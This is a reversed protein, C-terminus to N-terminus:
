MTWSLKLNKVNDKTLIKEDRAWGTRQNDGGDTVWDTLTGQPAGGGRQAGATLAACCWAATLLYGVKKMVNEEFFPGPEKKEQMMLVLLGPGKKDTSSRFVSRTCRTTTRPCTCKAMAPPLRAPIWSLRSPRDATGCNKGPRRMSRM